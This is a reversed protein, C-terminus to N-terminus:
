GPEWRLRGNRWGAPDLRVGNVRTALLECSLAFTSPPHRIGQARVEDFTMKWAALLPAVLPDPHGYWGLGRPLWSTFLGPSFGRAFGCLFALEELRAEPGRLVRFVAVDGTDDTSGEILLGQDLLPRALARLAGDVRELRVQRLLNAARVLRAGESVPLEVGGLRASVGPEGSRELLAVRAPAVDLGVTLIHPWRQRLTRHLELTTDPTDGIGVDVVVAEAWAGETRELPATAIDLIWADVRALRGARTRGRGPERRLPGPGAERLGM